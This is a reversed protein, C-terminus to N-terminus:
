PTKGSYEFSNTKKLGTVVLRNFVFMVQIQIIKNMYKFPILHFNYEVKLGRERALHPSERALSDSSGHFPSPHVANRPEAM